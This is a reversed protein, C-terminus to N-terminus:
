QWAQPQQRRWGSIPQAAVGSRFRVVAPHQPTAHGKAVVPRQGSLMAQFFEKQYLHASTELASPYKRINLSAFATSILFSVPVNKIAAFFFVAALFFAAALAALLDTALFFATAFFFGAAFFFVAALFFGTVFFFGVVLFAGAELFFVPLFAVAFAPLFVAVLDVPDTAFFAGALFAETVWFAAPRLFGDTLLFDVTVM